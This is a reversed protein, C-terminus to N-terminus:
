MEKGRAHKCQRETTMIFYADSLLESLKKKCHQKPLRANQSRAKGLMVLNPYDRRTGETRLVAPEVLTQTPESGSFSVCSTM